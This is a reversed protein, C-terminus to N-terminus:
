THFRPVSGNPLTPNCSGETGNEHLVEMILKFNNLLTLLLYDM